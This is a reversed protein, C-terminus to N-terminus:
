NTPRGISRPLMMRVKHLDATIGIGFCRILATGVIETAYGRILRISRIGPTPVPHTTWLLPQQGAHARQRNFHELILATRPLQVGESVVELSRWGHADLVAESKRINQITDMSRGEEILASAPVGLQEAYGAMAHAEVFRNYAAGGSLLIRPARGARWERVAEAVRWQEGMSAGGDERAPVGLVVIVDAHHLQGNQTPITLFLLVSVCALVAAVGIIVSVVRRGTM